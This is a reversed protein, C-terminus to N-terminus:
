AAVKRPRGAKKKPLIAMKETPPSVELPKSEIAPRASVYGQHVSDPLKKNEMPITDVEVFDRGYEPHARVFEIEKINSTVLYGRGNWYNRKFNIYVGKIMRSNKETPYDSPVMTLRLEPYRSEFIVQNESM